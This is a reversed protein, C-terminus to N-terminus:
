KWLEGDITPVLSWAAQECADDCVPRGNSLPAFCFLCVSVRHLHPTLTGNPKGQMLDEYARMLKARADKGLLPNCLQDSSNHLRTRELRESRSAPIRRPM